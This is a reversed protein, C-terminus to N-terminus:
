CCNIQCLGGLIGLAARRWDPALLAGRESGYGAMLGPSLGAGEVDVDEFSVGGFFAARLSFDDAAMLADEVAESGGEVLIVDNRSM